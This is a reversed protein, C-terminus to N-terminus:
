QDGNLLTIPLRTTKNKKWLCQTDPTSNECVLTPRYASLANTCRKKTTTITLLGKANFAARSTAMCRMAGSALTTTARGNKFHFTVFLHRTTDPLTTTWVGDLFTTDGRLRSSSPIMLSKPPSQPKEAVPLPIDSALTIPLSQIVKVLRERTSRVQDLKTPSPSPSPSPSPIPSPSPRRVEYYGASILLLLVVGILRTMVYGSLSKSVSPQPPSAPASEETDPFYHQYLKHLDIAQHKADYYGWYVILPQQNVCFIADTSPLVTLNQLIKDIISLSSTIRQPLHSRLLEIAKIIEVLRAVCAAQQSQTAKQWPIITQSTASCFWLPPTVQRGYSPQAFCQCIDGLGAEALLQFIQPAYRSVPIGEVNVSIYEQTPTVELATRVM